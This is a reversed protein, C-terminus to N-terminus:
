VATDWVEDLDLVEPVTVLRGATAALVVGGSIVANAGVGALAVGGLGVYTSVMRSVAQVASKKAM